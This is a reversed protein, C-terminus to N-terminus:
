KKQDSHIIAIAIRKGMSNLKKVAIERPKTWANRKKGSKNKGSKFGLLLFNMGNSNMVVPNQIM